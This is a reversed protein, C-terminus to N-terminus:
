LGRNRAAAPGRREGGNIVRIRRDGNCVALASSIDDGGDNVIIIEYDQFSQERVSEVAEALLGPRNCTPIIVSVMPSGSGGNNDLRGQSRNPSPSGRREAPCANGRMWQYRDIDMYRKQAAAINFRIIGHSMRNEARSLLELGEEHQSNLCRLVALNNLAEINGPDLRLATMFAKAAFPLDSVPSGKWTLFRLGLSGLSAYLGALDKEGPLSQYGFLRALNEPMFYTERITTFEKEAVSESRELSDARELYLGAILPIKRATMGAAAFRFMFERDGFVRMDDQFFGIREFVSRRFMPAHSTIQYYFLLPPLFRPYEFLFKGAPSDTNDNEVNTVLWDGYVAHVGRDKDLEGAMRELAEPTFRDDSNANIIYRGRSLRVGRNWAAYVTERVETREYRISSHRAAFESVITGEKQPSNSDIVIIELQGKTFLTQGALNELRGRMFRESNFASIIASVLLMTDKRASRKM